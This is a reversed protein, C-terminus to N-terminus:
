LSLETGVKIDKSWPEKVTSVVLEGDDFTEGFTIPLLPPSPDKQKKLLEIITCAFRSPTAFNMGESQSKSLGSTNIGVVLGNAEHILAGGSNGPNVAADTQLMEIGEISKKGSIIGRTATFDLGWPHGFAIVPDGPGVNASCDLSAVSASSPIRNVPIELIALDLHTDIFIRKARFPSSGRFNVRLVAPARRAVHANTLVWGRERDILFGAGRSTSKNESGFAYEVAASIKLTYNGAEKILNSSKASAPLMVAIAIIMTKFISM